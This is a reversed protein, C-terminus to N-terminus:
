GSSGRRPSCPVAPASSWRCRVAAIRRWHRRARRRTSPQAAGRGQRLPRPVPQITQPTLSIEPVLVIAEKGQRIIEEIARLYIETKGSGTVGHLLFAQFGGRRVAAEVPAWVRLQDANLIVAPECEGAADNAADITEMSNESVGCSVRPLSGEIPGTGCNALHLLSQDVVTQRGACRM